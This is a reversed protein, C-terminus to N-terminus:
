RSGYFANISDAVYDIDDDSLYQHIPLSLIQRARAECVPYDGEKCGLPKCVPQLHIPVPYHVATMVGSDRLYEALADRGEALVMFVHFTNFEINRCVPM